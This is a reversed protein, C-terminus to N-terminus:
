ATIYPSISPLMSESNSSHIKSEIQRFFYGSIYDYTLNRM